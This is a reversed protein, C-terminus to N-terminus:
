YSRCWPTPFPAVEKWPSNNDFQMRCDSDLTHPGDMYIYPCLREVSFIHKM